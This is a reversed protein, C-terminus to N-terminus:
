FPHWTPFEGLAGCYSGSITHWICPSAIPPPGLLLVFQGSSSRIPLVIWQHQAHLCVSIVTVITISIIPNFKTTLGCFLIGRFYIEELLPQLVVTGIFMLIFLKNIGFTGNVRFTIRVTMVYRLLVSTCLGIVGFLAMQNASQRWQISQWFSEKDKQRVIQIALWGVGGAALCESVIRLSSLESQTLLCYSCFRQGMEGFLVLMVIFGSLGALGVFASHALSWSRPPNIDVVNEGTM